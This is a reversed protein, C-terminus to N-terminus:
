SCLLPLMTACLEAVCLPSPTNRQAPWCVMSVPSPPAFSLTKKALLKLQAGVLAISAVNLRFTNRSFMAM